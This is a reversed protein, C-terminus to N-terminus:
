FSGTCQMNKMTRVVVENIVQMIILYKTLLDDHPCVYNKQTKDVKIFRTGLMYSNTILM